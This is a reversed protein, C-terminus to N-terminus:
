ETTTDQIVGHIDDVYYYGNFINYIATCVKGKYEATVDNNGNERLITVEDFNNKSHVMAKIKFM